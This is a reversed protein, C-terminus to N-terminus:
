NEYLWCKVTKGSAIKFHPPDKQTCVPKAMACQGAYICGQNLIFEEEVPPKPHEALLSQSYPHLPNNIFSEKDSYEVLIGRYLVAVFDAVQTVAPLDHSILLLTLGKDKKIKELLFLIDWKISPDLATTPEDAILFEPGNLIALGIMLRQLQGGSLEHPYSDLIREADPIQVQKLIIGVNEANGHRNMEDFQRGIRYSPDFYTFPNQFIMSMKKQRLARREESSIKLLDQGDYIIEGEIRMQPFKLSLLGMISLATMTKGSGSAGVLGLTSNRPVSLNLEQLIPLSAANKFGVSLNKIELLALSNTM